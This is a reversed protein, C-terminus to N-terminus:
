EPGAEASGTGTAREFEAVAMFREFVSLFYNTKARNLAVQSDLVELQTGVGNQYRIDAIDLGKQAQEVSARQSRVLERTEALRSVAQEVELRVLDETQSEYLIAQEYQARSQRIRGKTRLGDFMPVSVALAVTWMRSRWRETELTAEETNMTASGALSLSPYREAKALDLAAKMGTVYLRAARIENRNKKALRFAEKASIELDDYALEGEPEVSEDASLGLANRFVILSRQLENKTRIREPTLEAVRVRARILEYESALGEEFLGEVNHLHAEALGVADEALNLMNRALLVGAFSAKVQFVVDQAVALENQRAYGRAAAAARLAAGTRGATYVPQLLSVTAEVYSDDIDFTFGEKGGFNMTGGSKIYRTDGSLNPLAGARAEIVRGQMLEVEQKQILVGKNNALALRISEELTLGRLGSESGTDEELLVNSVAGGQGAPDEPTAASYEPILVSLVILASLCLLHVVSGCAAARKSSSSSGVDEAAFPVRKSLGHAEMDVM